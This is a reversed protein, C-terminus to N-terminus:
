PGLDPGHPGRSDPAEEDDLLGPSVRCGCPAATAELPGTATVRVVPGGCRPCTPLSSVDPVDDDDYDIGLEDFIEALGM